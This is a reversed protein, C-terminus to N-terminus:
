TDWLRKSGLGTNLTAQSQVLPLLQGKSIISQLGKVDEKCFFYHSSYSQLCGSSM